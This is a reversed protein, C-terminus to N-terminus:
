AEDPEVSLDPTDIGQKTLRGKVYNGFALVAATASSDLAPRMFPHKTAGPHDVGERMVGALFLSKRSKPKIFHAKAGFEVLHAYFPQGKKNGGATVTAVPRGKVLRSSVRISAQLKGSRVPVLRKAEAETVKAAARLAGRVINREIKDPLEALAKDLEAFGKIKVDLM